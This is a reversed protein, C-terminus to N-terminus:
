PQRFVLGVVQPQRQPHAIHQKLLFRGVLIKQDDVRRLVAPRKDEVSGQLQGFPVLEAIRLHHRVHGKTRMGSGLANQDDAAAVPRDQPFDEAVRADFDRDTIDNWTCGAGRMLSAGAACGAAIWLGRWGLGPGSAASLLVGWWCPLLLLWTGIPRDARSLRLYPRMWAAARTDVWNGRVADAVQGEPARPTGTM